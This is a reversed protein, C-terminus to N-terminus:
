LFMNNYVFNEGSAIQQMAIARFRPSKQIMRAIQESQEPSVGEAIKAVLDTKNM